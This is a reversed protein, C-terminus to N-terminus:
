RPTGALGPVLETLSDLDHTMEEFFFPLSRWHSARTGRRFAISTSSMGISGPLLFAPLSTPVVRRCTLAASLTHAIRKASASCHPPSESGVLM